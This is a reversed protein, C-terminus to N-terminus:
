FSMNKFKLKLDDLTLDDQPSDSTNTELIGICDTIVYMGCSRKTHVDRAWMYLPGAPLMEYTPLFCWKINLSFM